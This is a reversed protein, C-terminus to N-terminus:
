IDAKGEPYITPKVLILLRKPKEASPSKRFALRIPNINGRLEQQQLAEQKTLIIPEAIRQGVIPLTDGNSVVLRTKSNFIAVPPIEEPCKGKYKDEDFDKLLRVEKELDLAIKNDDPVLEPTLKIFTGFQLKGTKTTPAKSPKNPEYAVEIFYAQSVVPIETQKGEKAFVKQHTLLKYDKRSQVAKLIMDVIHEDFSLAIPEGSESFGSNSLLNESWWGTGELSNSDLGVSKLFDDSVMLIRTDFMIQAKGTSPQEEPLPKVYITDDPQEAADGILRPSYLILEAAKSRPMEEQVIITPKILVILRKREAPSATQNDRDFKKIDCAFAFTKNNPIRKNTISTTETYSQAMDRRDYIICELLGPIDQVFDIIIDKNGEIHPTIRCFMNIPVPSSQQSLNNLESYDLFSMFLHKAISFRATENNLVTARPAMLSKTDKNKQSARLLAAVQKDDLFTDSTFKIDMSDRIEDLFEANAYLYRLEISIQATNIQERRSELLKEIQKHARLTQYIALKIPRAAPYPTIIGKANPNNQLWSNPDITRTILNVINRAENVIAQDPINVHSAAGFGSGDMMVDVAGRSITTGAVVLDSIDYIRTMPEVVAPAIISATVICMLEEAPTQSVKTNGETNHNTAHQIMGGIIQSQGSSIYFIGEFMRRSIIPKQGEVQEIVKSLEARVRISLHDDKISEVTVDLSSQDTKIQATQGDVVELTPNMLIKAYGRSVLLDFLTKFEKNTLRNDSASEGEIPETAESANRLLDAATPHEPIGIKDGLLNKIRATTESDVKSDPPVEVVALDVKVISKDMGAPAVSEAPKPVNPAPPQGQQSEVSTNSEISANTNRDTQDPTAELDIWKPDADDPGSSSGLRANNNGSMDYAFQGEKQEFPWWAALDPENGTLAVNEYRRIQEWTRAGNWIRIEGIQGMLPRTTPILFKGIVLPQGPASKYNEENIVHSIHIWDSKGNKLKSATGYPMTFLGSHNATSYEILLQSPDEPLPRNLVIGFGTLWARPTGVYFGKSLIAWGWYDKNPDTPLDTRIWMEVTFPAELRLSPSDPVFLYDDVGDLEIAYRGPPALKSQVPKGQEVTASNVQQLQLLSNDIGTLPLPRIQFRFGEIERTLFPANFSFKEQLKNEPGFTTYGSPELINGNKQVLVFRHRRVSSQVSDLICTIFVKGECDQGISGLNIHETLVKTDNFDPPIIGGINEWEVSEPKINGKANTEQRPEPPESKATLAITTPVVIIAILLITIVFPIWGARSGHNSEKNVLRRIRSFLSGGTAAVALENRRARIEEMSALAKAYRVRDGSISVALDDCCNEREVRIRHSVWWVATHYFGLTEVVTQLINVLYDYRRIHALEHALLAELQEVALGTMASAPLLIVPRLWGVVTPVQVLASELLRVARKVKLRGSLENLKAGLPVEVRKVMQKKLRQLQAWGGLHWLSLGFVGLLWGAVLYPLAPELWGVARQRWPINPVADTSELQAPEEHKVAVAPPIEKTAPQTQMMVPVPPPDISTIPQPTSVHIIQMTIIPLIVILALATCAIIYRINSSSKRLVALLIGLLLAVVAAQWVFHLLMWGLKQIIEESLINELAM